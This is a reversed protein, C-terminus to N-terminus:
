FNINRAVPDQYKTQLSHLQEKLQKIKAAYAPNNYESKLEQPDKKLDFFEWENLVYYYILKHQDTRIGFHQPVRHPKPYESYHYYVEQRWDKPTQGKLLPVLSRGQMEHPVPVGAAELFTEALDLNLVMEKNESGPKTVGPWRVILPTHLSEEYMWRKDFWGHEGLYFGQDSSYVVITNEELGEQKLYDLVKGVSEDVSAVTRLYDQLYRQYKWRVLDKGTPKSALFKANEEQYAMYFPQWQEPLMRGYPSNPNGPAKAAHKPEFLKNDSMLRMHKGIEMEQNRAGSARNAYDDFLTAPEPFKKDKYLTLHEPAPLWERHPAKHQFMMLFPKSKDRKKDLWNLTENTIVDTVYGQERKRGNATLFDPNYYDGQGPLIKWFDFGTPDSHLHWKGVIATQYGAQQLLKPFTTQSGDFVEGPQNTALGNLHSYKGTLLVARSPGCISNTVMAHRFLMGDKALRDINPTKTLDSGYASIARLAHDDTFIVLINPQKGATAPSGTRKQAACHLGSLALFLVLFSTLTKNM